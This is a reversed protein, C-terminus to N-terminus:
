NRSKKLQHEALVKKQDKEMMEKLLLLFVMLGSLVGLYKWLKENKQKEDLALMEQQRLNTLTLRINKIQDQRDTTGLYKGFATLIELDNESIYSMNYFEALAKEWAESATFGQRASLYKRTKFFLVRIEKDSKTEISKLAEMLPSHGYNIETELMSISTQLNRLIKPRHQYSGAVLFGIMSSSVLVLMGGILKLM